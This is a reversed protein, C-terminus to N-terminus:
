RIQRDSKGSVGAAAAARVPRCRQTVKHRSLFHSMLGWKNLVLLQVQGVLLCGETGDTRRVPKGPQVCSCSKAEGARPTAENNATIAGAKM